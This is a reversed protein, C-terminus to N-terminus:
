PFSLTNYISPPASSRVAHLVRKPPSRPGSPLCVVSHHISPRAGDWTQHELSTPKESVTGTETGLQLPRRGLSTPTKNDKQRTSCKEDLNRKNDQKYVAAYM